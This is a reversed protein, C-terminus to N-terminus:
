RPMSFDVRVTFVVTAPKGALLGPEYQWQRVAAMAAEEFDLNKPLSGSVVVDTIKGTPDVTVSLSV